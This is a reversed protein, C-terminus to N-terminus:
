ITKAKNRAFRLWEEKQEISTFIRKPIVAIGGKAIKFEIDEDNEVIEQVSDWVFRIETGLKRFILADQSFEYESQVPEDHGIQEVLVKRIRKQINKEYNSLYIIIFVIGAISAFILKINKEDPIGFYFGFFLLPAWILGQLMWKKAVKSTKLLRFQAEVAEEITSEYQIKM